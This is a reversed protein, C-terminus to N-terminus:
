ASGDGEDKRTARIVFVTRQVLLGAAATVVGTRVWRLLPLTEPWVTIVVTYLGLAGMVATVAVMHRGIASQRWTPARHNYVLVFVAAAAAVLGSAAASWGQSGGM